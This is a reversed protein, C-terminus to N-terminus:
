MKVQGPDDRDRKFRGGPVWIKERGDCNRRRLWSAGWHEYDCPVYRSTAKVLRLTAYAGGNVDNLNQSQVSSLVYGPWLESAIRYLEAPSTERNALSYAERVSVKEDERVVEPECLNKSACWRKSWVSAQKLIYDALDAVGDAGFQLCECRRRGYRWRRLIEKEDVGGSIVLHHHARGGREGLASVAVYRLEVGAKAYLRRLRQLMNQLDRRIEEETEPLYEDDYTLTVAYDDETFNAHLLRVLRREACKVNYREQAESTPRMRGRRRRGRIRSESWVPFTDVELFEGSYHEMARYFCNM